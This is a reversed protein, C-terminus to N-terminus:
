RQPAEPMASVRQQFVLSAIFMTVHQREDQNLRICCVTTGGFLLVAGGFLVRIFLAQM